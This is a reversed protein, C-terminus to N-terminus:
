ARKKDFNFFVLKLTIVVNIFSVTFIIYNNYLYITLPWVLVINVMHTISLIVFYKIFRRDYHSLMLLPILAPFTYREHMRTMFTFTILTINILTLLLYKPSYNKFLQILVYLYLIVCVILSFARATILNLILFGDIQPKLGYIIAWFNMANATVLDMFGPLIKTLMTQFFWFIPNIEVPNFPLCIIYVLALLFSSSLLINKVSIKNKILIIPIIPIWILLSSKYLFSFLLFFISPLYKKHWLFYIGLLAFLSVLSDGSGWIASNYILPPYLALVLAIAKSKTFKYGFYVILIDALIMPIKLLYQNGDIFYWQMFRSPFLPIHINLFWFINYFFLYVQRVIWDYYINVMPQDPPSHGGFNLWDYFGRWNFESAFKGWWYTATVDGHYIWPWSLLRIFIGLILIKTITLKQYLKKLM